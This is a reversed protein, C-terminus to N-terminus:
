WKAPLKKQIAIRHDTTDIYEGKSLDSLIRSVMERRCGVMSAIDAHTIKQAVVLKGDVPEALRLLLTTVREYVTKLALGRSKDTLERLLRTVGQVIKLSADPNERLFNEFDHKQIILLKTPEMTIASASRPSGDLISLEGFYDGPELTNLTFEKGEEDSVFIRVRGSEIIYFSDSRDGENMILSQNKYSRAVARSTLQDLEEDSFNYFTQLKSAHGAEAVEM